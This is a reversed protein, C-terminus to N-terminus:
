GMSEFKGDVVDFGLKDLENYIFDRLDHINVGPEKSKDLVKKYAGSASIRVVEKNIHPKM